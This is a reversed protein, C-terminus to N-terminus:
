RRQQCAEVQLNDAARNNSNLSVNLLVHLGRHEISRTLLGEDGGGSLTTSQGERGLRTHHHADRTSAGTLERGERLLTSAAHGALLDRGVELTDGHAHLARDRVTHGIRLRHSLHLGETAAAS